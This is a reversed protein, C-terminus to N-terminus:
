KVAEASKWRLAGGGSQGVTGAVDGEGSQTYAPRERQGPISLLFGRWPSWNEMMQASVLGALVMGLM